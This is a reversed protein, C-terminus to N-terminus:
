NFNLNEASNLNGFFGNYRKNRPILTTMIDKVNELTDVGPANVDSYARSKMRGWETKYLIFRDRAGEERMNFMMEWYRMLCYSRLAQKYYESDPILFDGHEDMPATYYSLLVYGEKFSTKLCGNPLVSYEEKCKATLNICNDSHLAGSFSNTALRLPQWQFKYYKSNLIDIKYNKVMNSNQMSTENNLGMYLNIENIDSDNITGNLKYALQNIQVLGTPLKATYKDVKLLTTALQYQAQVGIMEMAEACNEIADMENYEPLIQSIKDLVSRISIWNTM